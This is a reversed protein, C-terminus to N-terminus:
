ESERKCFLAFEDVGSKFLLKGSYDKVTVLISGTGGFSVPAVVDVIYAYDNDLEEDTPNLYFQGIDTKFHAVLQAALCGGGNAWKGVQGNIGNCIQMGDLFNALDKGHGSPYGDLQRYLNLVIKGYSKVITNSRTGM